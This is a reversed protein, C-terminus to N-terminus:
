LLNWLFTQRMRLAQGVYIKDPDEIKNLEVLKKMYDKYDAGVEKKFTKEAGYFEAMEAFEKYTELAIESLTNGPQVIRYAAMGDGSGVVVKDWTGTEENWHKLGIGPNVAPEDPIKDAVGELLSNYKDMNGTLRRLDGSLRETGKTINESYNGHNVNLDFLDAIAQSEKEINIPKAKPAADISRVADLLRESSDHETSPTVREAQQAQRDM